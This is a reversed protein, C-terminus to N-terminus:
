EEDVIYSEIERDGDMSPRYENSGRIVQSNNNQKEILNKLTDIDGPISKITKMVKSVMDSVDIANGDKDKFEDRELNNLTDIYNELSRTSINLAKTAMSVLRNIGDFELDEKVFKLIEKHNLPVHYDRPLKTQSLAYIHSDKANLGNKICYGSPSTLYDIYKFYEKSLYKVTSTDQQYVKALLPYKLLEQLNLVLNDTNDIYWIHIM